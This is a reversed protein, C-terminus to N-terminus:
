PVARRRSRETFRLYYGFPDAIRFDRQGWPREVLEDVVADLRRAQDYVRELDEVVVVIEVGYGRPTTAAFRRFYPHEACLPTGPWFHIVNGGLALSLYGGDAATVAEEREIQFGLHGYFEKVPAFDPVHLEVQTTTRRPAAGARRTVEVTAPSGLGPPELKTVRVRTWPVACEALVGRAIEDALTEVLARSPGEVVAAAIARLRRYDLTAELADRAAAAAADVGCEIAVEFPQPRAREDGSVGHRGALRVGSLVIRDSVM